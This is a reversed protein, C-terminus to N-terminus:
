EEVLFSKESSNWFIITTSENNLYCARFRASHTLFYFIGCSQPHNKSPRIQTRVEDGDDYDDGDDDGYNDDYDDGFGDKDDDDDGDDYDNNYDNNDDDDYDENYDDDYGDGYDDKVGDFVVRWVM